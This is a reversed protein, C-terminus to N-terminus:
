KPYDKLIMDNIKMIREVLKLQFENSYYEKREDQKKMQLSYIGQSLIENGVYHIESFIAFYPNRNKYYLEVEIIESSNAKNNTLDWEMSVSQSYTAKLLSHTRKDTYTNISYGGYLGKKYYKASITDAIQQLEQNSLEGTDIDFESLDIRNNEIVGESIMNEIQLKDIDIISDIKKAQQQLDHLQNSAIKIINQARSQIFCAFLCFAYLIPKIHEFISRNTKM